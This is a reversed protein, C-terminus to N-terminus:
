MWPLHLIESGVIEAGRFFGEDYCYERKIMANFTEPSAKVSEAVKEADIM